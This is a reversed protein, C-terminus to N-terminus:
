CSTRFTTLITYNLTIMNHTRVTLWVLNLNDILWGDENWSILRLTNLHRTEVWNMQKVVEEDYWVCDLHASVCLVQNPEKKGKMICWQFRRQAVHPFTVHPPFVSPAWIKHHESPFLPKPSLTFITKVTIFDASSFRFAKNALTNLFFFFFSWM